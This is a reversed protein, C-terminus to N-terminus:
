IKYISIISLAEINNLRNLRCLLYYIKITCLYDLIFDANLNLLPGVTKLECTVRTVSDEQLQIQHMIKLSQGQNVKYNNNKM